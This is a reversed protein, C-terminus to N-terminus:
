AVRPTCICMPINLSPGKLVDFGKVLYKRDVGVGDGGRGEKLSDTPSPGIGREVSLVM